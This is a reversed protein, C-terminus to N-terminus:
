APKARGGGPHSTQGVTMSGRQLPTIAEEPDWGAGIRRRLLGASVVCRKDTAWESPAKNEGSAQIAVLARVGVLLHRPALPPQDDVNQPRDDADHHRGGGGVVVGGAGGQEVESRPKRTHQHPGPFPRAHGLAAIHTVCDYDACRGTFDAALAPRYAGGTATTPAPGYPSDTAAYRRAALTRDADETLHHSNAAHPSWRSTRSISAPRWPDTPASAPRSASKQGTCSPARTVAPRRSPTLNTRRKFLPSSKTADATM